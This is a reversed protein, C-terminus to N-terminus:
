FVHVRNVINIVDQQPVASPPSAGSHSGYRQGYNNSEFNGYPNQAVQVDRVREPCKCYGADIGSLHNNHISNFHSVPRRSSRFLKNAKDVRDTYSAKLVTSEM